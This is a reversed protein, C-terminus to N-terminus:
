AVSLSKPTRTSAVASTTTSRVSPEGLISKIARDGRRFWRARTPRTPSWTVVAYVHPNATRQQGDAVVFGRRQDRRRARPWSARTRPRRGVSMVVMDVSVNDGGEIAITTSGEQTQSRHDHRRYSYRHRAEQVFARRRESVETDCGHSDGATGRSRSPPEMDALLSAFECGIAGGGIVAATAPLASLDLFEDSTVVITGDVDFGPLTRPVSGAALVVNAGKAIVGADAGDVVTVTATPKSGDRAELRHGQSGELPRFGKFLRDVIENKRNQSV